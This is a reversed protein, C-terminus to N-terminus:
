TPYFSKTTGGKATTNRGNQWLELYLEKVEKSIISKTIKRYCEENNLDTSAEKALRDAHENGEKGAHAKIWRFEVQMENRELEMVKNKIKDILNTHRKHNTLLQLTIKSDTFITSTKGADQRSQIYELAQLIALQEAQNNTCRGNLRFRQTAILNTNEFVAIGAGVGTESKSGDTYV